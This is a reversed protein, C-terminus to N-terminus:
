APLGLGLRAQLGSKFGATMAYNAPFGAGARGVAALAAPARLGRCGQAWPAGQPDHYASQRPETQNDHMMIVRHPDHRVRERSALSLRTIM